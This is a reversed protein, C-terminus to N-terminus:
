RLRAKKKNQQMEQQYRKILQQSSVTNMPQDGWTFVYGGDDGPTLTANDQNEWYWEDYVARVWKNQEPYESEKLSGDAQVVYAGQATWYGRNNNDGAGVNFLRPIYNNQQLWVILKLEAYTPVRWRGAPYKQEQYSACRLRANTRNITGSMAGYQSAIRIKPAIMMKNSAEEKAPYYYRPTRRNSGNYPYLANATVFISNPTANTTSPLDSWNTNTGSGELNNNIVYERPDGIIYEEDSNLGSLTTLNLVYMNPNKTEPKNDSDLQGVYKLGKLTENNIWYQNGNYTGTTPNVFTYGYNHSATGNVRNNNGYTPINYNGGPNMDAIIYMGPYQTITITESYNHNDKHRLTVLITYPSFSTIDGPKYYNISDQVATVTSANANTYGYMQVEKDAATNWPLWRLLSHDIVVQMQNNLGTEIGYYCLEDTINGDADKVVSADIVDKSITFEVAKGTDALGTTNVFGLESYKIEINSIEVPHSTYYPITIETENNATYATPTVVLYRTDNIDVNITEEGWPIVQYTLDPLELPTDPNLSGLMGVNLNVTYSYNPALFNMDSIPVQYYYSQYNGETGALHWPVILTLVTRHTETPTNEWANPYTYLPVDIQYNYEGTGTPALYRVLGTSSTTINFYADDANDGGPAWEAEPATICDKVGNDLLVQLPSSILVNNNDYEPKTQPTWTQENEEGENVKVNAPLHVNLTIKAAARNVTAAGAASEKDDADKTYTVEGQGAMVFSDQVKQSAFSSSVAISKLQAVTPNEPVQTDPDELNCVVYMKCKSGSATFLGDRLEDTIEIQVTTTKSAKLNDFVQYTVPAVNEEGNAPYLAVVANDILSENFLDDNARSFGRGNQLTITVMGDTRLETSDPIDFDDACGALWMAPLSLALPLIYKTLKRFM